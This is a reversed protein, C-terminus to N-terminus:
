KQRAARKPKSQQNNRDKQKNSTSTSDEKHTPFKFLFKNLDM